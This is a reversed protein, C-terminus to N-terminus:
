AISFGPSSRAIPLRIWGYAGAVQLSLSAAGFVVILWTVRRRRRESALEVAMMCGLGFLFSYAIIDHVIHATDFFLETAFGVIM